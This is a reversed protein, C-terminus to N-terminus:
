KSKSNPEKPELYKDIRAYARSNLADAFNQRGCSKLLVFSTSPVFYPKGDRGIKHVYSISIDTVKANAKLLTIWFNFIAKIEYGLYVVKIVDNEPFKTKLYVIQDFIDSLSRPIKNRRLVGNQIFSDKSYDFAVFAFDHTESVQELEPCM